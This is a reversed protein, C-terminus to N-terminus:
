KSRLNEIEATMQVATWGLYKRIRDQHDASLQAVGLLIDRSWFAGPRPPSLDAALQAAIDPPYELEFVRLLDDYSVPAPAGVVIAEGENGVAEVLEYNPDAQNAENAM